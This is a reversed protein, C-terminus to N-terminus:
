PCGHTVKTQFGLESERSPREVLHGLRLLLYLVHGVARFFHMRFVSACICNVGLFKCKKSRNEPHLDSRKTRDYASYIHSAGPSGTERSSLMLGSQKHIIRVVLDLALFLLDRLAVFCHGSMTHVLM